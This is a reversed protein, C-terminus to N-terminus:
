SHIDIAVWEVCIPGKGSFLAHYYKMGLFNESCLLGGVWLYFLNIM